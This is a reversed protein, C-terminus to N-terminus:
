QNLYYKQLYGLQQVFSTAPAMEWNFRITLCISELLEDLTRRSLANDVCKQIHEKTWQM